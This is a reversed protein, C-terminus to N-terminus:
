DKITIDMDGTGNMEVSATVIKDNENREPLIENISDILSILMMTNDFDEQTLLNEGCKPCPKNVWENYNELKVSMDKFDCKPNDCKIGCINMEIANM